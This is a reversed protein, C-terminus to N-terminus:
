CLGVREEEEKETPLLVPGVVDQQELGALGVCSSSAFGPPFPESPLNIALGLREGGSQLLEGSCHGFEGTKLAVSLDLDCCARLEPAM